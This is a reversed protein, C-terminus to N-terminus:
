GYNGAIRSFYKEPKWPVDKGYVMRKGKIGTAVFGNQQLFTIASKNEAPIVAKDAKSYKIRMLAMGADTSTAYVPGEGLAPSYYGRLEDHDVYLYSGALYRRLLPERAEGSLEKDLRLVDAYFKDQFPEINESIGSDIWPKDRKFSLYDSVIRFGSKLYVPEGLETAILSVSEVSKSKVLDLLREVINFGIGANRYAKGVIVHALWASKKFAIANGIGVVQNDLTVKLPHCFDVSTYFRFDNTIDGWGQPQLDRILDLDAHTLPHFLM